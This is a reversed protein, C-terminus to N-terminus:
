HQFFFEGKHMVLYPKDNAILEAFLSLVFLVLFVWLSWFGRRNKKFNDLRRLNLPTVKSKWISKRKLYGESM